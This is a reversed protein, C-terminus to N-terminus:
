DAKTTTEITLTSAGVMNIAPPNLIQEFGIEFRAWNLTMWQEILTRDEAVDSMDNLLNILRFVESHASGFTPFAKLAQPADEIRLGIM